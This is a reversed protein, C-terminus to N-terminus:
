IYKFLVMDVKERKAIMLTEEFALFSDNKRVPDNEAYGLHNDTTIMIRLTKSRDKFQTQEIEEDDENENSM